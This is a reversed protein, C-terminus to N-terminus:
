ERAQFHLHERGALLRVLFEDFSINDILFQLWLM